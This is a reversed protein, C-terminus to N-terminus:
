RYVCRKDDGMLAHVEGARLDFHVGKLAYVGHFRKHINNMELVVNQM